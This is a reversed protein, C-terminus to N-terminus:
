NRKLLLSFLHCRFKSFFGLYKLFMCSRGLNKSRLRFDIFLKFFFKKLFFHNEKIEKNKM